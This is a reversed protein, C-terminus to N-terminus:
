RTKRAHRPPRELSVPWTERKISSKCPSASAGADPMAIREREQRGIEGLLEGYGPQGGTDIAILTHGRRPPAGDHSLFSGAEHSFAAGELGAAMIEVTLALATDKAEGIPVLSGDLAAQLATTARGAADLAWGKPISQGTKSAVMIKGRAVKSLSPDIVLPPGDPRPTAAAIPNTGFLAAHAGWPAMAKPMHAVMVGILGAEAIREVTTSLAGCHHSNGVARRAIRMSKALPVSSALADDISINVVQSM